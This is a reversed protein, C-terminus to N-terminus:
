VHSHHMPNSGAVKPAKVGTIIMPKPAGAGTDADPDETVYRSTYGPHFCCLDIGMGLQFFLFVSCAVFIRAIGGITAITNTCFGNLFTAIIPDIQQCSVTGKIGNLASTMQKAYLSMGLAYDKSQASRLRVFPDQSPNSAPKAIQDGMAAIMTIATNIMDLIPNFMLLIGKVETNPQEGCSLYYNLTDGIMGGDKPFFNKIITYPDVCFDSGLIAIAYYIGALIMLITALPIMATSCLGFMCCNFTNQFVFISFCFVWFILTAIVAMGAQSLQSKIDELPLTGTLDKFTSTAGDITKGMDVSQDIASKMGDIVGKLGQVIASPCEFDNSTATKNCADVLNQATESVLSAAHGLSYTFVTPKNYEQLPCCSASCAGGTSVQTFTTNSALYDVYITKGGSTTTCKADGLYKGSLKLTDVFMFVGDIIQQFGLPFRPIYSIAAVLMGIEIIGFLVFFTRVSLVKKFSGAPRPKRCRCSTCACLGCMYSPIYIILNIVALAFMGAAVGLAGQIYTISPPINFKNTAEGECSALCKRPVDNFFKIVPDVKYVVKREWTIPVSLVAVADTPTSAASAQGSLGTGSLSPPQASSISNKLSTSAATTGGPVVATTSITATGQPQLMRAQPSSSESVVIYDIGERLERLMRRGSSCDSPKIKYTNALSAAPISVTKGNLNVQTILVNDVSLGIAAGQAIRLPVIVCPDAITLISVSGLGSITNTFSVVPVPKVEAPGKYVSAAAPDAAAAAKKEAPPEYKPFSAVFVVSQADSAISATPFSGCAGNTTLVFIGGKAYHPEFTVCTTVGGVVTATQIISYPDNGTLYDREKVTSSFCNLEIKPPNSLANPSQPTKVQAWFEPQLWFDGSGVATYKENVRSTSSCNSGFGPQVEGAGKTVSGTYGASTGYGQSGGGNITIAPANKDNCSEFSTIKYLVSTDNTKLTWCRQKSTDAETGPPGTFLTIASSGFDVGAKYVCEITKGGVASTALGSSTKDFNRIIQIGDLAFSQNSV